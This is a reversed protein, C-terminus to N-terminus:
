RRSSSASWPPRCRWWALSPAPDRRLRVRAPQLGDVVRGATGPRLRLGNTRGGQRAGPHVGLRRHRFPNANAIAAAAYASTCVPPTIESVVGYYLVFMHSAIPPVGLQALAPQAVSVLMIYLATTPIGAGMLICSVAILLLSLFLQLDAQAFLEFTGFSLLGYLSEAM